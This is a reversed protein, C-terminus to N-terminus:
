IRWKSSRPFTTSRWSTLSSTRECSWRTMRRRGTITTSARRRFPRRTVARRRLSRFCSAHVLHQVVDCKLMSYACVCLATCPEVEELLEPNLCEGDDTFLSDWNDDEKQEEEEPNRETETTKLESTKHTITDLDESTVRQEANEKQGGERPSPRDQGNTFGSDGTDKKDGESKDKKTKSNYRRAKDTYRPRGKPKKDSGSQPKEKSQPRNGAQQGKPVYFAMDPKKDRAPASPKPEKERQISQEMVM